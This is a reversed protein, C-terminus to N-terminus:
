FFVIKQKPVWDLCKILQKTTFCFSLRKSIAVTINKNGSLKGSQVRFHGTKLLKEQYISYPKQFNRIEPYSLVKEGDEIVVGAGVHVIFYDFHKLDVLLLLLSAQIDETENVKKLLFIRQKIFFILRKYLSLLNDKHMLQQVLDIDSFFSVAQQVVVDSVEKEGSSLAFVAYRENISSYFSDLEDKCVNINM